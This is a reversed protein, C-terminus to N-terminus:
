IAGIIQTSVLIAVSLLPFKELYNLVDDLLFGCWRGLAALLSNVYMFYIMLKSSADVRRAEGAIALSPSGLVQLVVQGWACCGFGGVGTQM